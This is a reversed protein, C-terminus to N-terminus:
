EVVMAEASQTDTVMPLLLWLSEQLMAAMSMALVIDVAIDTDEATDMIVTIVM